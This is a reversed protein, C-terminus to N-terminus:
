PSVSRTSRFVAQTAPSSAVAHTAPSSSSPPTGSAHHLPKWTLSLTHINSSLKVHAHTHQTQRTRTHTAHTALIATTQLQTAAMAHTNLRTRTHQISCPGAPASSHARDTDTLLPPQTSGIRQHPRTTRALTFNTPSTSRTGRIMAHTGLTSSLEPRRPRNTGGHEKRNSHGNRKLPSTPWSVLATAGRREDGAFKETSHKGQTKQEHTLTKQELVLSIPLQSPGPNWCM